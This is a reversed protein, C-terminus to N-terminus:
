IYHVLDRLQRRPTPLPTEAAHGIALIAVPLLDKPAGLARRVREEDFAGVWVSGLGLATAALMAFACAITADQLAYLNAGRRGYRLASRSPYACFVLDLPAQALFEQDLAAQALALRAAPSTVAYIQYAQLNGASPARNAAELIAQLQTAEIPRPQYNRVSHRKRIVEFFEM